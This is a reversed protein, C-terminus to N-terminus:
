VVEGEQTSKTVWCDFVDVRVHTRAHYYVKPSYLSPSLFIACQSNHVNPICWQSPPFLGKPRTRWVGLFFTIKKEFCIKKAERM